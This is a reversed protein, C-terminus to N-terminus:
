SRSIRLEVTGVMFSGRPPADDVNRDQYGIGLRSGDSLHPQVNAGYCETPMVEERAGCGKLRVYNPPGWPGTPSSAARVAVRDVYAPWPSYVMLYTGSETEHLLSLPGAPYAVENGSGGAFEIPHPEVGRAWRTGTWAEYRGSDAVHSVPVRYAHCPGYAGVDLPSPPVQCRYIVVRDEVLLAATGVQGDDFLVQEIVRVTLPEGLPPHRPDYIWEGLSVGASHATQGSGLCVNLMWILVRDRRGAPVVVATLPWMGPVPLNAPCSPFAATPEAFVVPEGDVGVDLTRTPEKARAWSASGITFHRLGGDPARQGTDGFFWAVSGDRLLASVGADRDLPALPNDASPGVERLDSVVSGIVVRPPGASADGCAGVVAILVVAALAVRRARIRSM